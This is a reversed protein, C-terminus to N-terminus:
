KTPSISFLNAPTTRDITVRMGTNNNEPSGYLDGEEQLVWQLTRNGKGLVDGVIELAVSTQKGILLPKNFTLLISDKSSISVNTTLPVGGPKRVVINQVNEKQVTGNQKLQLSRINVTDKSGGMISLKGLVVQKQGVRLSTATNPSYSVTITDADTSSTTMSSGEIPFTGSLSSANSVINSAQMIDFRHANGITTTKSFDAMITVEKSTCPPIVLYPVPYLTVMRDSSNIQRKGSIRAQNSALYVFEVKSSQGLGKHTVTISEVVVEDEGCSAALSVSLMPVRWAGHLMSSATTSQPTVTLVGSEVPPPTFSQFVFTDTFPRGAVTKIKSASITFQTDPKLATKFTIEVGDPRIHTVNEITKDSALLKYASVATASEKTVDTSFDVVIKKESLAYANIIRATSVAAQGCDIGYVLNSQARNIMAVM